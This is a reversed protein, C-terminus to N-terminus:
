ARTLEPVTGIVRWIQRPDGLSMLVPAVWVAAKAAFILGRANTNRAADTAAPAVEKFWSVTRHKSMSDEIAILPHDPLDAVMTPASHREVYNRSAHIARHSNAIKRGMLVSDDTDGTRLAVDAEGKALDVYQDSLV